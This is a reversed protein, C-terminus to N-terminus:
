SKCKVWIALGKDSYNSPVNSHGNVQRFRCLSRYREEWIARHSDWVFGMAELSAEREDTLASHKKEQKLKYQYRQRKVWQALALNEPFNHPVFCHGHEARFQVLDGFRENWHESQYTRFRNLIVEDSDDEPTMKKTIHDIANDYHHLQFSESSWPLSSTPATWSARQKPRDNDHDKLDGVLDDDYKNCRHLRKLSGESASTSLLNYQRKKNSSGMSGSVVLSSSPSEEQEIILTAILEEASLISETIPVFEVIKEVGMPGIPTPELASVHLFPAGVFCRNEESLTTTTSRTADDEDIIKGADTLIRSLATANYSLM